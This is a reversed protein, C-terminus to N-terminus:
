IARDRALADSVIERAEHIARGFDLAALKAAVHDLVHSKSLRASDRGMIMWVVCLVDRWSIHLFDSAFPMVCRDNNKERNARLIM